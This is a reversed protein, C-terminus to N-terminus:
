HSVIGWLQLLNQAFSTTSKVTRSPAIMFDPEARYGPYFKNNIPGDFGAVGGVRDQFLGPQWLLKLVKRNFFLAL